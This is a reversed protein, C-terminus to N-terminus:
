QKESFEFIAFGADAASAMLLLNGDESVGYGTNAASANNGTGGLEYSFVPIREELSAFNNLAILTNSGESINYVYFTSVKDGSWAAQRGTTMILYREADYNIIRADTGRVPVADNELKFLTNGDRDIVSILARTSTYIFENTSGPVQNIYAYYSASVEPTIFTPNSWTTYGTVDYRLIATGDQPLFFATGNGNEDLNVSMNDGFRLALPESDTGDVLKVGTGDFNVVTEPVATEDTYHYVKLPQDAGTGTSLNCIFIHGNVLRGTSIAYTGGEVGTLDLVTEQPAGTKIDLYKLVKPFLGGTRSVILMTKGDFDTSRTNAGSFDAWINGTAGSYDYVMGGMFDAGFVPNADFLVRYENTIGMFDMQLQGPNSAYIKGDTMGTWTVATRKPLCSTSVIQVWESEPSKLYVTKDLESVYGEKEAGNADRVVVKQLLPTATAPLLTVKVTYEGRNEVNVVTVVAEGKSVDYTAQDLSAGLSLKGKFKIAEIDSEAPITFTVTKTEENLTGQITETGTLGANTISLSYIFTEGSPNEVIPDDSCATAGFILCLLMSLCLYIKRINM